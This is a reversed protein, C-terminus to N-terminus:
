PWRPPPPTDGGPDKTQIGDVLKQWEIYKKVFAIAKACDIEPKKVPKKKTAM